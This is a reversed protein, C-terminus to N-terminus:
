EAQRAAGTVIVAVTRGDPGRVDLMGLERLLLDFRAPAAPDASEVLGRMPIAVVGPEAVSVHLQIQDGVAGHIKLPESAAAPSPDVRRRLLRGVAAENGATTTAETTTTTTTDAAEMETSPPRALQATISSIVLLLILVLILRRAAM